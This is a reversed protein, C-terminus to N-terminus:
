KSLVKVQGNENAEMYALYSDFDGGFEARLDPKADWEAKCREDLPANPDVASPAAPPAPNPIAGPSDNKVATLAKDGDARVAQLVQIAAEPGTTKGDFMLAEILDDHGPMSQAKVAQIRDREATAGEERIAQTDVGDRGEARLADAIAPYQSKVLDLTIEPSTDSKATMMFAEQTVGTLGAIVSELSGLRDAMGAEVADAGLLLGGRGFDSLVTESDVGRYNAVTDVFITALKDATAQLKAVGEDTSADLRKDPSQRSVIELSGTEKTKRVTLVVGISGVRATDRIVVEHGAAAIWYGASAGLDSVYTTVPKPSARVMEAFESIGSVQGGPSDVELVISAVEDSDIAAQLDLALKQVSSAGSVETFLNAYRFIPGHVPIVAAGDRIRVESNNRLPRGLRAAVAEPSENEGNAVAIITELASPTIAWEDAAIAALIRANNM